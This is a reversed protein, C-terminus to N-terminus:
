LLYPCVRKINTNCKGNRDIPSIFNAFYPKLIRKQSEYCLSVYISDKILREYQELDFNQLLMSLGLILDMPYHVLRPLDTELYGSFHLHSLPHIQQFNNEVNEIQDVHFCKCYRKGELTLLILEAKFSIDKWLNKNEDKWASADIIGKIYLKLQAKDINENLDKSLHTLNQFPIEFVIADVCYNLEPTRANYPSANIVGKCRQLSEPNVYPLKRLVTYLYDVKSCVKNQIERFESEKMIEIKQECINLEERIDNQM